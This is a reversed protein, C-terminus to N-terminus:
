QITPPRNSAWAQAPTSMNGYGAPSPIAFPGQGFPQGGTGFAQGGPAGSFQGGLGSNQGSGFSQHAHLNQLAAQWLQQIAVGIQQTVASQTLIQQELQGLIQVVQQALHPAGAGSLLPNHAFPSTSLQNQLYPSVQSHLYPNQIFQGQQFPTQPSQFPMQPLPNMQGASPYQQAGFPYQMQGNGGSAGPQAFLGQGTQPTAVAQQGAFQPMLGQPSYQSPSLLM